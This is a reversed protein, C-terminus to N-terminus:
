VHARGIQPDMAKLEAPLGFPAHVGHRTAGFLLKGDMRLEDHCAMLAHNSEALDHSIFGGRVPQGDAGTHLYEDVGLPNLVANSNAHMVRAPNALVHSAPTAVSELRKLEPTAETGLPVVIDSRIVQWSQSDLVARHHRRHEGTADSIGAKKLLARMLMPEDFGDLELLSAVNM